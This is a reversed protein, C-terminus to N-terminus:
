RQVRRVVESDIFRQRSTEDPLASSIRVVLQRADAASRDDGDISLLADLAALILAPDATSRAVAVAQRADAIADYKRGVSDLARARMILGLAEYKPRMRQRCQAIGDTAEGIATEFAGRALSLESRVQCLRLRWLWGHFGPM